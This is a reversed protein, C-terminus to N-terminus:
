CMKRPRGRRAGSAQEAKVEAVNKLCSSRSFIWGRSSGSLLPRLSWTSRGVIKGAKVMRTLFSPSVSLIKAAEAPGCADHFSIPTKVKALAALAKPRLHLWARPRRDHNGGLEAVKYEYDLLNEECELGDYIQSLRYGAAGPTRSDCRSATLLGKEVMRAPTSFHVGMLAAAEFAGVAQRSQPAPSGRRIPNKTNMM